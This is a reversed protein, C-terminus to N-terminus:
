EKARGTVSMRRPLAARTGPARVRRAGAPRMPHALAGNKGERWVPLFVTFARLLAALGLLMALIIQAAGNFHMDVPREESGLREAM